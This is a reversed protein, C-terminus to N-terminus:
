WVVSLKCLLFLMGFFIVCNFIFFLIIVFFWFCVFFVIIFGSWFMIVLNFIFMLLFRLWVFLFFLLIYRMCMGEGLLRGGSIFVVSVLDVGVIFIKFVVLFFINVLRIGLEFVLVSEFYVFIILLMIFVRVFFNCCFFLIICIFSLFIFKGFEKCVKFFDVERGFLRWFLIFVIWIFLLGVLSLVLIFCSCFKCWMLLFNSVWILFCNFFFVVFFVWFLVCNLVLYVCGCDLVRVFVNCLCVLLNVILKFCIICDFM